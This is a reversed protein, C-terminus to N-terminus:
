RLDMSADLALLLDGVAGLADLICASGQQAAACELGAGGGVGELSHPALAQVQELQGALAVPEGMTVSIM